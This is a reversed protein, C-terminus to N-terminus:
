ESGERLRAPAGAHAQFAGRRQLLRFPWFFHADPATFHDFFYERGALMDDAIRFNEFLGETAFKIVSDSAGAADCVKPPNNIRSLYPHIGSACWAHLSISQLQVWSRHAPTKRRPLDSPGMSPHRREPDPDQRRCSVCASQTEPQNEPVRALFEAAQPFQAAPGRFRRGSRDAHCLARARLYQPRLLLSNWERRRM